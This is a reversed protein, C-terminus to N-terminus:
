SASNIYSIFGPLDSVWRDIDGTLADTDLGHQADVDMEVYPDNVDDLWGKLFRKDKNWSNIRALAMGGDIHFGSQFTFSSCRPGHNCGYFFVTFHTGSLVSKIKLDGQDDTTIEAPYGKDQLVKAMEQATVGGEVARDALASAGVASSMALAALGIFWRM